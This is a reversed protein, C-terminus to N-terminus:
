IPAGSERELCGIITELLSNDEAAEARTSLLLQLTKLKASLLPMTVSMNDAVNRFGALISTCNM